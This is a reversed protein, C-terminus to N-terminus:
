KTENNNLDVIALVDSNQDIDAGALQNLETIKKTAM